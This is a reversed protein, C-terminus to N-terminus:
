SQSQHRSVLHYHQRGTFRSVSSCLPVILDKIPDLRAVRSVLVGSHESSQEEQYIFQYSMAHPPM